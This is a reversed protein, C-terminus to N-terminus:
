QNYDL